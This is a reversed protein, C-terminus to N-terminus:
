QGEPDSGPTLCTAADECALRAQDAKGAAPSYWRPPGYYLKPGDRESVWVMIVRPAFTCGKRVMVWAGEVWHWGKGHWQWYGDRWRCGPRPARGTQEVKAPPPPYDVVALRDAGDGDTPQEGLPVRPVEYGGCAAALLVGALWRVRTPAAHKM